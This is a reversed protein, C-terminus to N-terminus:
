PYVQARSPSSKGTASNNAVYLRRFTPNFVSAIALVFTPNRIAKLLAGSPSYELIRTTDRVWMNGNPLFAIAYGTSPLTAAFSPSVINGTAQDVAMFGQVPNENTMYLTAAPSEALFDSEGAGMSGTSTALHYFGIGAGTLPTLVYIGGGTGFRNADSVYMKTSGPGFAISEPSNYVTGDGLMASSSFVSVAGSTHTVKSIRNNVFTTVYLSGKGDFASGTPCDTPTTILTQVFTGTPTYENM